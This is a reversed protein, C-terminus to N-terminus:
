VLDHSVDLSWEDRVNRSAKDNGCMLIVDPGSVVVRFHVAEMRGFLRDVVDLDGRVVEASLDPDLDVTDQDLESGRSM